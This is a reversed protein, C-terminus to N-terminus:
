LPSALKLVLAESVTVWVIAKVEKSAAKMKTRDLGGNEIGVEEGVECEVGAGWGELVDLVGTDLDELVGLTSTPTIPSAPLPTGSREAPETIPCGLVDEPVEWLTSERRAVSDRGVLAKAPCPEPESSIAPCLFSTRGASRSEGRNSGPRGPLFSMMERMSRAPERRVPCGGRTLRRGCLPGDMAGTAVTTVPPAASSRAIRVSGEVSSFDTQGL